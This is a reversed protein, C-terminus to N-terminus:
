RDTVNRAVARDIESSNERVSSQREMVTFGLDVIRQEPPRGELTEIVMTAANRGMEYRNTRVSTLTPVSSAMFELDNFGVIAMQEPVAIHRRQCEFLVGLALDDNACLVGETDPARALLDAFLTGGLTVSTPVPTTVILRPDFLSAAKM